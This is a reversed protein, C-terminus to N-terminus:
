EYRLAIMPDVKTARRAPIYCALLAVLTLLLAISAFTLPDSASVGYLLSSLVRTLAFSAALGVGVGILALRMGQGIVLRLVDRKQAGLAMRVGIEHTRQAVTHAMVGYIGIAALVLAVASFVGLLVTSVRRASIEHSLSQEVTGMESVPLEKDIAHIERTLLASLGRLDTTTRVALTSAALRSRNLPTYIKIRSEAGTGYNRVNKIVGVIQHPTPSDYLLHQGIADGNPWFERALREDIIVVPSGEAVEQPTFARGRLIPIRMVEFYDASIIGWDVNIEGGPKIQPHGPIAIDNTWGTERGPIENSLSVAEVGPLAAVRELLQQYFQGIREREAYRSSPLAIGLTAVHRADFGFDSNLLRALSRALLGAGILLVLALAIEAVVFAGCLRGQGGGTTGKVGEKLMENLGQTRIQRAPALGFLLGTLLTVLLTFGLVRYDLSLEELRPIGSPNAAKFLDLGWWALLLGCVGGLLALLVCETLMQRVLRLRSAGLASRVAFEKQRAAARALLLNAVNACAILLVFGVAGLLLLLSQRTEGVVNEYLTKVTITHGANTWPHLRILEEKVASMDARAAALTVGPKLRAIVSGATRMDRKMWDQQVTWPGILVWLPPSDDQRFVPPMVGIVTFPRNDLTISQGIISEDGGFRSQWFGYSLITVYNAGPRDEERLFDRGMLPKVRMISFYDSTVMGAALREPQGTGTLTLYWRRVTSMAEFAQNRDRWDLFNAYSVARTPIKEHRETLMVLRDADEYPLPKLMVANVVSFIATNAGIGLALTLVATAAFGPKRVLVRTGFRLDQWFSELWRGGRVDYGRERMLLRHGFRREADLRAEAPSMGRRMNEEARMEVHFQMEEDIEREIAEARWLARVRRFLNKLYSM